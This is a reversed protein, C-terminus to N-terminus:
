FCERALTQHGARILVSMNTRLHFEVGPPGGGAGPGLTVSTHHKYNLSTPCKVKFRLDCNM